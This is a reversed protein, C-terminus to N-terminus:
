WKAEDLYRGLDEARLRGYMRKTTDLKQHGAIDSVRELPVGSEMLQVVRSHRLVHPTVPINLRRGLRKIRKYIDHRSYDMFVTQSRSQRKSLWTKLIAMGRDDVKVRQRYGGKRVVTIVGHEWDIDNVHLGLIESIRCCSSFLLTIVAKELLLPTGDILKRVDDVLLYKPENVEISISPLDFGYRWRIANRAVAVTNQKKGKLVLDDLFKTANELTPINGAGLFNDYLRVWMSYTEHSSDAIARNM